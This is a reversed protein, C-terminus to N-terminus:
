HGSNDTKPRNQHAGHAHDRKQRARTPVDLTKSQGDAFRLTVTVTDGIKGRFGFLMLHDGRPALEISGHQPLDYSDVQRMRMMGDASKEHTHLEIRQFAPSDAGILATDGTGHNMIIGHMVGPREGIGLMIRADSVMMGAAAPVAFLMLVPLVLKRIMDTM